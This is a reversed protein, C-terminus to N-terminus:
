RNYALWFANENFMLEGPYAGGFWRDVRTVVGNTDTVWVILHAGDMATALGYDIREATRVDSEDYTFSDTWVYDLGMIDNEEGAAEAIIHVQMTESVAKISVDAGGRYACIISLLAVFVSIAIKGGRFKNRGVENRCNLMFMVISAFVFVAAIFAIKRTSFGRQLSLASASLAICLLVSIWFIADKRWGNSIHPLFIATPIGILISLLFFIYGTNILYVSLVMGVAAFLIWYPENDALNIHVCTKQGTATRKSFRGSFALFLVIYICIALWSLRFYYYTSAKVVWILGILGSLFVTDENVIKENVRLDLGTTSGLLLTTILVVYWPLFTTQSSITSTYNLLSFWPFLVSLIVTLFAIILAIGFTRKSQKAFANEEKNTDCVTIFAFSTYLVLQVILNSVNLYGWCFTSFGMTLLFSGISKNIVFAIMTKRKKAVGNFIVYLVPSTILVAFQLSNFDKMSEVFIDATIDPLLLPCQIALGGLFTILLYLDFKEVIHQQKGYVCATLMIAGAAVVFAVIGFLSFHAILTYLLMATFLLGIGLNKVHNKTM